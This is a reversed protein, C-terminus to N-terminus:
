WVIGISFQLTAEVSLKSSERKIFYALLTLAIMGSFVVILSGIETITFWFRLALIVITIFTVALWYKM